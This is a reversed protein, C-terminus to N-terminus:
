QANKAMYQNRLEEISMAPKTRHLMSHCNPCVPRLDNIAHVHYEKGISHIEKLHHVHIFGKGIEGYVNEFNVDCVSCNYGYHEVCAKRAKESREYANVIVSRVAGEIYKEDVSVENPYIAFENSLRESYEEHINHLGPRNGSSRSEQYAVHKELAALANILGDNGYSSHIVDLMYRTAFESDGRVYGEAKMMYKFNDITDKATHENMGEKKMKNVAATISIEGEYVQKAIDVTAQMLPDPISRQM